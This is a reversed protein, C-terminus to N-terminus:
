DGTPCVRHLPQARRPEAMMCAVADRWTLYHATEKHAAVADADKFVEYLLFRTPETEDQLVDFRLNGPEERTGACNLRTAAIFDGVREPVVSVHVLTTKM